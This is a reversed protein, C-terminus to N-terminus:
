IPRHAVVFALVKYRTIFELFHHLSHMVLLRLQKALLINICTFFREINTLTDGQKKPIYSRWTKKYKLAIDACMPLWEKLLVERSQRCIEDVQEEFQAATCPFKHMEELRETPLILMRKFRETWLDRIKIIVIQGKCYSKELAQQALVFTTHWPVPARITMHPYEIPFTQIKLRRWEAPDKLVYRMLCWRMAKDYEAVIEPKYSDMIPKYDKLLKYKEPVKRRAIQLYEEPFPPIVHPPIGQNVYYQIRRWCTHFIEQNMEREAQAVMLEKQRDPHLPLVAQRKALEMQDDDAFEMRARLLIKEKTRKRQEIREKKRREKARFEGSLLEHLSVIGSPKAGKRRKRREEEKREEELEEATKMPPYCLKGEKGFPGEARKKRKKTLEAIRLRQASPTYAAGITESPKYFEFVDKQNVTKTWSRPAFLPPLELAARARLVHESFPPEGEPGATPLWPLDPPVRRGFEDLQPLPHGM